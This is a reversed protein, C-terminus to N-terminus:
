TTPFYTTAVGIVSAEANRQPKETKRRHGEACRRLAERFIDGAYRAYRRTDKRSSM